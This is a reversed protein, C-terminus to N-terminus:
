VSAEMELYAAESLGNFILLPNKAAATDTSSVIFSSPADNQSFPGGALGHNSECSPTAIAIRFEFDAGMPM